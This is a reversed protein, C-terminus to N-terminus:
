LGYDNNQDDSARSKVHDSSDIVAQFFVTGSGAAVTAAARSAIHGWGAFVNSGLLGSTM